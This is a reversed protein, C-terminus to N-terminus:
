PLPDPWYTWFMQISVGICHMCLWLNTSTPITLWMELIFKRIEVTKPLGSEPWEWTPVHGYLGVGCLRRWSLLKNRNTLYYWIHLPGAILIASSGRRWSVQPLHKSISTLYFQLCIPWLNEWFFLYVKKKSKKSKMALFFGKNTQENTQKKPSHLPCLDAKLKIQGKTAQNM